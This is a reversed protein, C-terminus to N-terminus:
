WLPTDINATATPRIKNTLEEKEHINKGENQNRNWEQM